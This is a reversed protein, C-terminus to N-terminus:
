GTSRASVREGHGMDGMREDMDASMLRMRDFMGLM